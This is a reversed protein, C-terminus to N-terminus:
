SLREIVAGVLHFNRAASGDRNTVNVTISGGAPIFYVCTVCAFPSQTGATAERSDTEAFCSDGGNNNLSLSVFFLGGATMAAGQVECMVSYVGAAVVTPDTLSSRNLLTSPGNSTDWTMNAAGGNGINVNNGTVQERTTPASYSPGSGFPM